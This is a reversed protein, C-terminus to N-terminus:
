VQDAQQGVADDGVEAQRHRQCGPRHRREGRHAAARGVEPQQDLPLRPRHRGLREPVDGPRVLLVGRPAPEVVVGGPQCPSHGRRQQLRQGGGLLHAAPDPAVEPVPEDGARDAVRDLGAEAVVRDPPHHEGVGEDPREGRGVVGRQPLVAAEEVVDDAVPGALPPHRDAAHAGDGRRELAGGPRRAGVEDGAGLHDGDRGVAAGRLDGGPVAAGLPRHGGPVDEGAHRRRDEVPEPAPLRRASRLPRLHLDVHHEVPQGPEAAAV